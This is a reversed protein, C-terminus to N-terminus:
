NGKQSTVLFCSATKRKKEWLIEYELGWFFNAWWDHRKVTLHLRQGIVDGFSDPRTSIQFFVTKASAMINRIVTEVDDPPIHEMVDTCFGFPASAPCPKTLDWCLFPIKMAEQDRCNDAFDVLLVQHGAHVLAVGARGTGCGFDIIMGDPKAKKLFMGVANEGPSHKRYSDFQWMLQYKDRETLNDKPTNWMAQLLGEGYVNLTCGKQQMHQATIQFKEAQAKMALGSYYAKGAWKVEVCPMFQNMSQWYAHSEGNRHCSDYGFVHFTRYGMAYAVCLAANGVAAGGGILAYGGAAVREKPLHLEIEDIGLHWLVPSKVKSMTDPHVQSAFLHNFATPDVLQETEQKADGIVQYDVMLNYKRIFQSAANMAFINGGAEALVRIDDTYDGISPGGGCMIAVGDHAEEMGLWELDLNSNAKINSHLTEDPTNCIVLVPIFLPATAGPNNFEM